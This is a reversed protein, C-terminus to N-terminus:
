FHEEDANLGNHLLTKDPPPINVGKWSGAKDFLSRERDYFRQVALDSKLIVTDLRGNRHKAIRIHTEKSVDEGMENTTVDYYEPRYIFGVLDSDQEIAGSERLDSLQPMKNGDKRKEVERSLQSLAMVPCDLEKALGKLNRSINSIEQERNGNRRDGVGSMLQLYDIIFFGVGFKNRLRRARARLEFINIAPTDDIHFNLGKLPNQGHNCLKEFDDHTLKSANIIKELPVGSKISLVRQMIQARSMELSFIAAGVKTDAAKLAFNIALATKGVAPRAALIILDPSQWGHTLDNLESYGTDIGTLEEGAQMLKFARDIVEGAAKEATVSASRIGTRIEMLQNEARDINEFPDTTDDYGEAYLQGGIRIQERKMFKEFVMMAHVEVHATTTVDDTLKTIGYAGGEFTDITGQRKMENYVTLYDIEMKRASLGEFAKWVNQHAESYFCEVRLIDSVMEFVGKEVMCAGLVAQELKKDQPPLKGFLGPTIEADKSKKSYAKKKENEM